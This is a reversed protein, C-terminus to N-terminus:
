IRVPMLLYLFDADDADDGQEPAPPRLIAPKLEDRLELMVEDGGLADLGDILFRPNFAIAM